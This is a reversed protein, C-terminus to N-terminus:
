RPVSPIVRKDCLRSDNSFAVDIHAKTQFPIKGTATWSFPGLRLPVLPNKESDFVFRLDSHNFRWVFSSEPAATSTCLIMNQCLQASLMKALELKLAVLSLCIHAQGGTRVLPVVSPPCWTPFM